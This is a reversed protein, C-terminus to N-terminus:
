KRLIRRNTCSGYFGEVDTKKIENPQNDQRYIYSLRHPLGDCPWILNISIARSWRIVNGNEDSPSIRLKYRFLGIDIDCILSTRKPSSIDLSCDDKSENKKTIHDIIEWNSSMDLEYRGNIYPYMLGFRALLRWVCRWVPPISLVLSVLTAGSITYRLLSFLWSLTAKPNSIPNGESIADPIPLTGTISGLLIAIGACAATLFVIWNPPLFRIM